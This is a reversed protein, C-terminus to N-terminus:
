ITEGEFGSPARDASGVTNAEEASNKAEEVSKKLHTM